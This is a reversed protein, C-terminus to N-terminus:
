SIEDIDETYFKYLNILQSITIDNIRFFTDFNKNFFNLFNESFNIFPNKKLVNILKKRKGYFFAKIFLFFKDFNEINYKNSIEFSVLSSTVKPKPYFCNPSIHFNIKPTSFTQSIVSLISYNKSSNNAVVREAVEKQLMFIAKKYITYNSLVNFIIQTSINYPLNGIIAVNKISSDPQWKLFDINLIEIQSFTEKLLMALNSDIEVLILRKNLNVLHQTLAGRGPGIEVLTDFDTNEILKVIKRIINSDTLFNQGLSKKPIIKRDM